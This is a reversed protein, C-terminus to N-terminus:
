LTTGLKSLKHEKFNDFSITQVCIKLIMFNDERYVPKYVELKKKETFLKVDLLIM